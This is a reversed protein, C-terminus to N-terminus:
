PAAEESAPRRHRRILEYSAITPLYFLLDAVLKGALAGLAPPTVLALGTALAAPRILLSDLLEAPGFELLLDRVIVLVLLVSMAAGGQM